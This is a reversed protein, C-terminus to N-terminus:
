EPLYAIKRGSGAPSLLRMTIAVMPILFIASGVVWMLAGAAIQDRLPNIDFVRAGVEYSTYIVTGSFTLFASVATNILDATMLYPLLLWRSGQSTSPWPQIVPFWFLISTFLFTAHETDHWGESRLALEYPQPLHWAVFAVNMVIWAFVPHTLLHALRRLKPYRFLPGLVNRVAVRPLGRLLPVAPNGLLLLPPAVSMLILHQAMHLTLLNANLTDLPSAFAIWLSAIGALYCACRWPPFLAPRTKRIKLYGRVYLFGSAALLCAAEVPFSWATLLAHGLDQSM